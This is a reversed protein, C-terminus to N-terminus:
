HRSTSIEVIFFACFLLFLSSFSQFGMFLIILYIAQPCPICRLCYITDSSDYIGLKSNYKNRANMVKIHSDESTAAVDVNSTYQEQGYLEQEEQETEKEETNFTSKNQISEM